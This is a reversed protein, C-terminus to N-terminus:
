SVEIKLKIKMKSINKRDKSRRLSLEFPINMSAKCILYMCILYHPDGKNRNKINENKEYKLKM